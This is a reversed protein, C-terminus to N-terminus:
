GTCCFLWYHEIFQIPDIDVINASNLAERDFPTLFSLKLSIIRFEDIIEQFLNFHYYVTNQIEKCLLAIIGTNSLM